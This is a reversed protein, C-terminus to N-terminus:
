GNQSLTHNFVHNKDYLTVGILTKERRTNAAFKLKVIDFSSQVDRFSTLQAFAAFFLGMMLYCNGNAGTAGLGGGGCM